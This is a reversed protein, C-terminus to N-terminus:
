PIIYRRVEGDGRFNKGRVMSIYVAGVSDVTVGGPHQLGVLVKTATGDPTVRTLSGPDATTPGDSYQLVYLNGSPDFALSIIWTFGSRFIEPQGHREMRWVNSSGALIKLGNLHGLYYAGDPGITISTPVFDRSAAPPCGPGPVTTNNSFAAFTSLEGNAARRVFANAGADAVIVGGADALVGFPNSDIEGCDPNAQTEYEGLDAVFEWTPRGSRPVGHGLTLAPALIHVLRGFERLEPKGPEDREKPDAELGITVYAGGYGHVSISNPGESQGSMNSTIVWSPLDAIIREQEGHFLRSVAGTRGHCVTQNLVVFCAGTGGRGAEAVYLEGEPGWALGRPNALKTMVATGTDPIAASARPVHTIHPAVVDPSSDACADVIAALAVLAALATLSKM